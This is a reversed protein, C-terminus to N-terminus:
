PKMDAAWRYRVSYTLRAEGGAPVAVDFEARRADKKRSAASSEIIEWDRWRPMPEVVRLTADTSKANRLTIAFSETITRGSRDVQFDTSERQASLDFAKGVELRIEGGGPTHDLRSEGLFEDGEFVRVRGAPLPGGLGADSTNQVTVAVVVPLVGTQGRYGPDILPQPPQWDPADAEVVYARECAINARRPFLAVRETAGNTIRIAAPLMYAHYEGSPRQQPMASGADAAIEAYRSQQPMPPQRRERSPEGAVLTLQAQGFTVGSRNAVLAAGALSLQCAQGAALTGLYEARWAMGGMPYSLLFDADGSTKANISWQLASQQPLLETGNIVSLNDYERIVKIRGDGLALTIGDTTALLIGNETQKAGGATHEVTVKQGRMQEFVDGSGSLAAIFRQAEVNVGATQPHLLAAEVDMAAPVSTASIANSGAKLMYRLPRSVLAYGPMDAGVHDAGALQEYDGSYVTLRTVGPETSRGPSASEAPKPATLPQATEAPRDNSCAALACALALLSLPRPM